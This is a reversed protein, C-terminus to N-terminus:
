DGGWHSGAAARRRARYRDRLESARAAQPAAGCERAAAALDGFVVDLDLGAAEGTRLAAALARDLLEPAGAEGLRAAVRAEGAAVYTATDEVLTARDVSALLTAARAVDGPADRGLLARVQLDVAHPYIGPAQAAPNSAFADAAACAAEWDGRALAILGRMNTLIAVNRQRDPVLRGGGTGRSALLALGRTARREAEDYRDLAYMLQSASYQFNAETGGPASRLLEEGRQLTRMADDFRWFVAQAHMLESAVLVAFDADGSEIASDLAGPGYAMAAAEDVTQMALQLMGLSAEAFFGRDGLDGALAMAAAADEAIGTLASTRMRARMRLLTLELLARPQSASKARAIAACAVREAEVPDIANLAKVRAAEVSLALVVTDSTEELGELEAHASDAFALANRPEFAGSASESCRLYLRAAALSEGAASSHEAARAVDDRKAADQLQQAAVRHFRKRRQASLSDRAVEMVVDHTFRLHAARGSEEVVGLALLDDIADLVREEPWGLMKALEGSGFRADLALLGAVAYADAGRERLRQDILARVSDPMAFEIESDRARELLRQLFLPHGRTREYLARAGAQASGGRQPLAMRIEEESLGRLPMEVPAYDKLAALLPRLGEPRTALILSSGAARLQQAIAFTVFASDGNLHHADDVFVFAGSPISAAIASALAAPLRAGRQAAFEEFAEGTRERYVNEWGGFGSRERVATLAVVTSGAVVARRAFQELLATKGFGADSCVVCTATEGARLLRDFTALEHSRGVFRPSRHEDRTVAELQAFRTEFAASAALGNEALVQRYRQLLTQAAVRRKAQLEADILAAYAAESFPDIQLLRQAAGVDSERALTASLVGELLGILRERETSSWQDYDGPLFDGAYLDAAGPEGSRARREFERADIDTGGQWVITFHDTVLLERPEIGADRLARRISWLATKLSQRANEPEAGPWFTEVIEDRAVATGQRLALYALLARAKQTSPRAVARGDISLEFAGLTRLKSALMTIVV